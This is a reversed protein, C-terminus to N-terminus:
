ELSTRTFLRIVEETSRCRGNLHLVAHCNPCVPRLDKIPDVVYDAKIESLPRVHHVHIFGLAEPGYKEGFDFKCICCKNGHAEICRRRAEPNREYSNVSIRCVAGEILGTTELIEEPSVFDLMEKQVPQSSSEYYAFEGNKILVEADWFLRFGVHFTAHTFGSSRPESAIEGTFPNVQTFSISRPPLYVALRSCPWSESAGCAASGFSVSRVAFAMNTQFKAALSHAPSAAAGM